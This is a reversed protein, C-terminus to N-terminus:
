KGRKAKLRRAARMLKGQKEREEPTAKAWRIRNKASLAESLARAAAQEQELWEKEEMGGIYAREPFFDLTIEQFHKPCPEGM